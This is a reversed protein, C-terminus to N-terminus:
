GFASAWRLCRRPTQNAQRTSLRISTAPGPTTPRSGSLTFSRAPPSRTTDFSGPCSRCARRTPVPGAPPGFRTPTWTGCRAAGRRGCAPWREPPSCSMSSAPMPTSWSCTATPALSSSRARRSRIRCTIPNTTTTSPSPRARPRASVVKYPIGYGAYSGFDMHLGRDLGIASIMTASDPVRRPRRDPRELREDGPLGPM